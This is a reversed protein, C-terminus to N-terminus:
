GRTAAYTLTHHAVLEGSADYTSAEGYMLRRGNKLVRAESTMDTRSGRLYSTKEELTVTTEAPAGLSVLALWMAVDALCMAAAGQFVGGPRLLETRVPLRVRAAGSEISEVIFGWWPGFGSQDVIRQADSVTLSPGGATPSSSASTLDPRDSLLVLLKRVGRARM